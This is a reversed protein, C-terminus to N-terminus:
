RADIEKEVVRVRDSECSYHINFLWRAGPPREEIDEPDSATEQATRRAFEIAAELTSFVFAETDTHRDEVMAVYVKM